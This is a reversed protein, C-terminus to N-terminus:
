GRQLYLIILVMRFSPVFSEDEPFFDHFLASVSVCMCTMFM